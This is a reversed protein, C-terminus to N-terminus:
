GRLVRRLKLLGDLSRPRDGDRAVRWVEYLNWGPVLLPLNRAASRLVGPPRGREDQIEFGLWKRSFGGRADRCLLLVLSLGLASFAVGMLSVGPFFFFVVLLFAIAPLDVVAAAVAADFALALARQRGM